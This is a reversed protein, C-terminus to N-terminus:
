NIRIGRRELAIRLALREPGLAAAKVAPQEALLNYLRQLGVKANPDGLQDLLVILRVRERIDYASDIRELLIQTWRAPDDISLAVFARAPWWTAGSGLTGDLLSILEAAPVQGLEARTTEREPNHLDALLQDRPILAIITAQRDRWWLDWASGASAKYGTLLRLTSASYERIETTKGYAAAQCLAEIARSDGNAALVRAALAVAENDPVSLTAALVLSLRPDGIGATAELLAHLRPGSSKPILDILAPVSRAQNAVRALNERMDRRVLDDRDFIYGNLLALGQPDGHMGMGKAAAQRKNPDISILAKALHEFTGPGKCQGLGMISVEAVRSEPDDCMKIVTASAHDGGITALVASVRQRIQWDQDGSLIMLDPVVVAGRRILNSMAQTHVDVRPDTLGAIDDEWAKGRASGPDKPTLANTLAKGAKIVDMGQAKPLEEGVVSLTFLSALVLVQTRLM